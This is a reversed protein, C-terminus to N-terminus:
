RGASVLIIEGDPSVKEHLRLPRVMAWETPLTFVPSDADCCRGVGCRCCLGRSEMLANLAAADMRPPMGGGAIKEVQVGKIWEDTVGDLDLWANKALEAPDTSSKLFGAKQMDKAVQEVDRRCKAVGPLYDLKSIAQANIEPTAALYKKEVAMKAAATPNAAVWKAGKLLARTVKAAGAPNERAFKGNVVAACCFEDKYAPDLAQDSVTRVKERISLITGIPEASAVADIQGQELALEVADPPYVVWDVDKKPDMGQQVALVRSAYLHPPSGLSSIGIKKGRLDGVSQIGSKLGAQIRLCGTHIGGTIKVDLGAEVPKLIYMLLTHNAHFQGLGLGAQLGKWDTKVLEVDLGEEQFFGNEYAVFIPPECTLGIYAVKLHLPGDAVVPAKSGDRCGTFALGFGGAAVLAAVVALLTRPNRGRIAKMNM